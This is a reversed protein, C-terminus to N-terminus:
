LQRQVMHPLSKKGWQISKAGKNFFLQGYINPNIELSQFRNWQHIHRDKHCYWMAKIATAKYYTKSDPVKNKKLTTKAGQLEMDIQPNVKQIQLFFFFFIQQSKSLSQM